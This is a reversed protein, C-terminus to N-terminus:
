IMDWEPRSSDLMAVFKGYDWAADVVKAGSEQEFPTFGIKRRVQYTLGGFGALVVQKSTIEPWKSTDPAGDASSGGGGGGGGGSEDDGGCAALLGPSLAVGTLAAARHLFARRTVDAGSIAM